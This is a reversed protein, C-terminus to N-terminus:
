PACSQTGLLLDKHDSGESEHKLDRGGHLFDGAGGDKGVDISSTMKSRFCLEPANQRDLREM